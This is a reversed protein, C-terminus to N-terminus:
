KHNENDKKNKVIADHIVVMMILTIMPLFMIGTLTIIFAVEGFADGVIVSYKFAKFLIFATIVTGSLTTCNKGVYRWM